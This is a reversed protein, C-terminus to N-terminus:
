DQNEEAAKVREYLDVVPRAKQLFEKRDMSNWKEPEPANLKLSLTYVPAEVGGAHGDSKPKAPLIGCALYLEQMSAFEPQDSSLTAKYRVARMYNYATSRSFKVAEPLSAIFAELWDEFDGSLQERAEILLEGAAVLANMGRNAWSLCADRSEEVVRHAELIREIQRAERLGATVASLTLKM